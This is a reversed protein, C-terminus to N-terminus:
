QGNTVSEHPGGDVVGVGDGIFVGRPQHKRGKVLKRGLASTLWREVV